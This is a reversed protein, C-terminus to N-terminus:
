YDDDEFFIVDLYPIVCITNQLYDIDENLSKEVQKLVYRVLKRLQRNKIGKIKPIDIGKLKSLQSIKTDLRSHLGELPIQIESYIRDNISEIQANFGYTGLTLIYKRGTHLDIIELRDSFSPNNSHSDPIKVNFFLTKFEYSNNM